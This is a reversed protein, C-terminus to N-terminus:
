QESYTLKEFPMFSGKYVAYRHKQKRSAEEKRASARTNDPVATKGRFPM